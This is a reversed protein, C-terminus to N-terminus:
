GQETSGHGIFRAFLIAVQQRLDAIEAMLMANTARMKEMEVKQEDGTARIAKMGESLTNFNRKTLEDM